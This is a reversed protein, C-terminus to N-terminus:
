PRSPQTPPRRQDKSFALFPTVLRLLAMIGTAVAAIILSTHIPIDKLYTGYFRTSIIDAVIAILSEAALIKNIDQDSWKGLIQQYLSAIAIGIFGVALSQLGYLLVVGLISHTGIMLFFLPAEIAALIYFPVTLSEETKFGLKRLLQTTPKILVAALISGLSAMVMLLAYNGMPSSTLTKLFWGLIPVHTIAGIAGSNKAVIDEIYEPLVNFILPDSFLSSVTTLITMMRLFRDKWVIVVGEKISHWLDKLTGGISMPSGTLATTDATAARGRILKISAYILGTLALAGAYIGYIVAGGVGEKGLVPGILSLQGAILPGIIAIVAAVFTLISNAKTREDPTVNASGLIRTKSAEEMTVSVGQFFSQVAVLALFIGIASLPSLFGTAAFLGVVLGVMGGRIITARSLWKGPGEKEVHRTFLPIAAYSFGQAVWHWFRASSRNARILAKVAEESGARADGSERLVNRTISSVLYPMGVIYMEYALLFVSYGLLYRKFAKDHAPDKIISGRKPAPPEAKPGEPATEHKSLEPAKASTEGSAKSGPTEPAAAYTRFRETTLASFQLAAQFRAAGTGAREIGEVAKAASTEIPALREQAFQSPEAANLPVGVEQAQTQPVASVSEASIPAAASPAAAASPLVQLPTLTGLVLPRSSSAGLSAAAGAPAGSLPVTVRASQIQAVAPQVGLCYSLVLALAARTLKM